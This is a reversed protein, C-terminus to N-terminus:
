YGFLCDIEVGADQGGRSCYLGGRRVDASLSKSACGDCIPVGTSSGIVDSGGLYASGSGTNECYVSLFSVGLTPAVLTGDEIGGDVVAHKSCSIEESVVAGVPGALAEAQDSRLAAFAFALVAVVFVGLAFSPPRM